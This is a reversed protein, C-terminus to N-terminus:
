FKIKAGITGDGFEFDADSSMETYTTMNNWVYEATLDVEKTNIRGYDTNGETRTPPPRTANLVVNSLLKKFPAIKDM